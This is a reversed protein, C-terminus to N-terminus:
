SAAERLIKRLQFLPRCGLRQFKIGYRFEPTKDMTPSSRYVILGEAQFGWPELRVRISSGEPWEATSVLGVGGLSLNKALAAADLQFLPHELRCPVEMEVRPFVRRDRGLM